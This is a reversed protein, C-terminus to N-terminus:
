PRNDSGAATLTAGTKSNSTIAPDVGYETARTPDFINPDVPRQLAAETKTIPMPSTAAPPEAISKYTPVGLIGASIFGFAGIGAILSTRM